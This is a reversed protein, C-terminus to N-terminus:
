GIKKLTEIREELTTYKKIGAVLAVDLNFQIDMNNSWNIIQEESIGKELLVKVTDAFLELYIKNWDTQDIPNKKNKWNM